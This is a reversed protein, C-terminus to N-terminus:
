SIGSFCYSFKQLAGQSVAPFAAPLMLVMLPLPVFTGM